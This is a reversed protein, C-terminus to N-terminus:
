LQRLGFRLMSRQRTPAMPRPQTKAARTLPQSEKTREPENVVEVSIRGITVKPQETQARRRYDPEDLPKVWTKETERASRRIPWDVEALKTRQEIRESHALLDKCIKETGATAAVSKSQAAAAIAKIAHPKILGRDANVVEDNRAEDSAFERTPQYPDKAPATTAGQVHPRLAPKRAGNASQVAPPRHTVNPTAFARQYSREQPTSLSGSSEIESRAPSQEPLSKRSSGRSSKTANRPMLHGANEDRRGDSLVGNIASTGRRSDRMRTSIEEDDSAIPSAENAVAWTEETVTLGSSNLGGTPELEGGHISNFAGGYDQAWRHTVPAEIFSETVHGHAARLLTDIYSSAVTM